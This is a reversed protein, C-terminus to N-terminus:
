YVKKGERRSIASQFSASHPLFLLSPLTLRKTSDSFKIILYFAFQIERNSMEHPHHSTITHPYSAPLHMSPHISSFRLARFHVSMSYFKTNYPFITHVKRQQFRGLVWVYLKRRQQVKGLLCLFNKPLM